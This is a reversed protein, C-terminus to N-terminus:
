EDEVTRYHTIDVGEEVILFYVMKKYDMYLDRKLAEVDRTIDMLQSYPVDKPLKVVILDGSQLRHIQGLRLELEM